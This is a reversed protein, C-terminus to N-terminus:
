CLNLDPDPHHQEQPMELHYVAVLQEPAEDTEVPEHHIAARRKNYVLLLLLGVILSGIVVLPAVVQVAKNQSGQGEPSELPSGTPLHPTKDTVDLYVEADADCVHTVVMVTYEGRHDMATNQITLSINFASDERIWRPKTFSYGEEEKMREDGDHYSVVTDRGKKWIVRLISDTQVLCNLVSIHGVQGEIHSTCNLNCVSSGFAAVPPLLLLLVAFSVM